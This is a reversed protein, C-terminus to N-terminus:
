VMTTSISCARSVKIANSVLSNRGAVVKDLNGDGYCVPESNTITNLEGLLENYNM